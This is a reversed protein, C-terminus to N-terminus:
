DITKYRKMVVKPFYLILSVLVTIVGLAMAAPMVVLFTWAQEPREEGEFLDIEVAPEAQALAVQPISVSVAVVSPASPAAAAPLVPLLLLTSLVVIRSIRSM